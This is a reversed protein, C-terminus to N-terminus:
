CVSTQLILLDAIVRYIFACNPNRWLSKKLVVSDIIKDM